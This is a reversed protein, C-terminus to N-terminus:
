KIYFKFKLFDSQNKLTKSLDLPTSKYNRRAM